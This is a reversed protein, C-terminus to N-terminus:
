VVSKKRLWDIMEEIQQKPVTRCYAGEFPLAHGIRGILVFRPEQDKAKKDMTMAEYLNELPPVRLPFKQYLSEIRQFDDASLYGLKWSLYSEALCGVLVAEGHPIRYESLAELGHAVTHGFNLIRRLGKEEPDKQVVEMKATISALILPDINEKWNPGSKECQDWLLENGILGYKLIEGLGNTWETAPLTKLFDAHIFVAHPPYIAGIQNKGFPTNVATKGGIAADVMGLLTTPILVLPVGRMHTAAVFGALDSVVGGGLGILLADRSLKKKLLEDELKQKTERTKSAEGGEFTLLDFSLGEKTLLSLIKEGYLRATNRDAILAGRKALSKCVPGLRDLSRNLYVHTKREIIPQNLTWEEMRVLIRM